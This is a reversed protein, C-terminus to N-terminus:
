PAARRVLSLNGRKAKLSKRWASWKGPPWKGTAKSRGPHETRRRDWMDAIFQKETRGVRYAALTARAETPIIM